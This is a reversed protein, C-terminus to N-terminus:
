HFASMYSVWLFFVSVGWFAFYELGEKGHAMIIIVLVMILAYVYWLNRDVSDGSIHHLDNPVPSKSM